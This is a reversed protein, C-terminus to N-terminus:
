HVTERTVDAAGLLKANVSGGGFLMEELAADVDTASLAGERQNQLHYQACRRM